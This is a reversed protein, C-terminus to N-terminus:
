SEKTLFKQLNIDHKILRKGVDRVDERTAVPAIASTVADGIQTLSPVVGEVASAVDAATPVVAQVATAIDSTSPVYTTIETHIDQITPTNAIVEEHVVDRIQGITPYQQAAKGFSERLMGVLSANQITVSKTGPDNRDEWTLTGTGVDYSIDYIRSDSAYEYTVDQAALLAILLKIFHEGSTSSDNDVIVSNTDVKIQRSM